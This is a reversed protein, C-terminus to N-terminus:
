YGSGDDKSVYFKMNRIRHHNNLGGTRAGWGITSPNTLTRVSSNGGYTDTYTFELTGDRWSKIVNSKWEIIWSHWTSDDVNAVADTKITTGAWSIFQYNAPSYEDVAWLYAGPNAEEGGPRTTAGWYFWIADAGTGGGTWTDFTAYMRSGPFIGSYEIQGNQDDVATTLSLYDGNAETADGYTTGGYGSTGEDIALYYDAGNFTYTQISPGYYCGM